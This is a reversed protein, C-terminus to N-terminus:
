LTEAKAATETEAAPEAEAAAEAEGAPSKDKLADDVVSRVFRELKEGNAKDIAQQRAIERATSPFGIGLRVVKEEALADGVYQLVFQEHPLPEAGSEDLGTAAIRDGGVTLGLERSQNFTVAAFQAREAFSLAVRQSMDVQVTHVPAAIACTVDSCSIVELVGTM